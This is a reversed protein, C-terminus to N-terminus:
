SESGMNKSIVHQTHVLITGSNEQQGCLYLTPTFLEEHGIVNEIKKISKINKFRNPTKQICRFYSHM